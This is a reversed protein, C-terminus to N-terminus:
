MVGDGASISKSTEGSVLGQSSGYGCCGTADEDEFLRVAEGLSSSDISFGLRFLLADAVIALFEILPDFDAFEVGAVRGNLGSTM